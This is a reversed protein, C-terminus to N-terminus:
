YKKQNHLEMQELRQRLAELEKHQINGDVKGTEKMDPVINM